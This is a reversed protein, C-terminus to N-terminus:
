GPLAELWHMESEKGKESEEDDDIIGQLISLGDSCTSGRSGYRAVGSRISENCALIVHSDVTIAIWSSGAELSGLTGIASKSWAINLDGDVLNGYDCLRQWHVFETVFNNNGGIIKAVDDIIDGGM